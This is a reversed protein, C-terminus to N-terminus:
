HSPRLKETIEQLMKSDYKNLTMNFKNTNGFIDVIELSSNEIGGFGPLILILPNVKVPTYTIKKIIEIKYKKETSVLKLLREKKIILLSSDLKLVTKTSFILGCFAVFGLVISANVNGKHYVMLLLIFLCCIIRFIDIIFDNTKNRFTM